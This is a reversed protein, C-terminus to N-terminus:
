ARAPAPECVGPFPDAKRGRLFEAPRYEEGRTVFLNGSGAYVCGAIDSKWEGGFRVDVAFPPVGAVSVGGAGRGDVAASSNRVAAPVPERVVGVRLAYLSSLVGSGGRVAAALMAGGISSGLFDVVAGHGRTLVGGGGRSRGALAGGAAVGGTVGRVIEVGIEVGNVGRVIEFGNVGGRVIELYKLGAAVGWGSADPPTDPGVDAAASPPM